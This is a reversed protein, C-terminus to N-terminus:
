AALRPLKKGVNRCVSDPGDEFTVILLLSSSGQLHSRYTKGFRWYSIVLVWQTIVWFLATGPSTSTEHLTQLLTATQWLFTQKNTQKNTQKWCSNKTLFYPLQTNKRWRLRQIIYTLWNISHRSIFVAKQQVRLNSSHPFHLIKIYCSCIRVTAM